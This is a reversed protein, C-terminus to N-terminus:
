AASYGDEALNPGPPDRHLAGPSRDFLVHLLNRRVEPRCYCKVPIHPTSFM